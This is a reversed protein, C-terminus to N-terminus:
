VLNKNRFVSNAFAPDKIVKILGQKMSNKIHSYVDNYIPHIISM